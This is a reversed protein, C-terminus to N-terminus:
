PPSGPAQLQPKPKTTRDMIRVVAALTRHHQYALVQMALILPWLAFRAFVYSADPAPDRPSARVLDMILIALNIAAALGVMWFVLRWAAPKAGTRRVKELNRLVKAEYAADDM